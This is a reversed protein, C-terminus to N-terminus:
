ERFIVWFAESCFVEVTLRAGSSWEREFRQKVYLSDPRCETCKPFRLRASSIEEGPYLRGFTPVDEESVILRLEECAVGGARGTAV